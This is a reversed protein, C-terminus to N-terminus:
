SLEYVFSSFSILSSYRSYCLLVPFLCDCQDIDAFSLFLLMAHFVECNVRELFGEGLLLLTNQVDNQAELDHNSLFVCSRLNLSM